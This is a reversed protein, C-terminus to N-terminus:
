KAHKPPIVVDIVFDDDEVNDYPADQPSRQGMTPTGRPSRTARSVPTGQAKVATKKTSTVTKRKVLGGRKRVHKKQDDESQLFSPSQSQEPSANTTSRSNAFKPTRPSQKVPSASKPSGVKTDEDFQMFSGAAEERPSKPSGNRPKPRPIASPRRAPPAPELFQRVRGKFPAKKESRRSLLSTLQRSSNGSRDGQLEMPLQGQQFEEQIAGMTEGCKYDRLFKFVLAYAKVWADSEQHQIIKPQLQAYVIDQSGVVLKSVETIFKARSNNGVGKDELVARSEKILEPRSIRQGRLGGSSM